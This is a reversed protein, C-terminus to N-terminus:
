LAQEVSQKFKVLEGLEMPTMSWPADVGRKPDGCTFHREIIRAGRSMAIKAADLNLTHDSFGLWVNFDVNEFHLDELLAPYKPICYLNVGSIWCPKQTNAIADRLQKNDKQSYALKYRQVGMEECWKIREVDFVSFFVPIGVQKGHEFLMFAQDKTLETYQKEGYLFKSDYLQFKAADAGWQKALEVMRKALNMDGCHNQGIESIIIIKIGM